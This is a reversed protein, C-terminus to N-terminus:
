LRATENILSKICTICSRLDDMTHEEKQVLLEDIKPQIDSEYAANVPAIKAEFAARLDDQKIKFRLNRLVILDIKVNVDTLPKDQAWRLADILTMLQNEKDAPFPLPNLNQAKFEELSEVSEIETEGCLWSEIKKEFSESKAVTRRFYERLKEGVTNDKPYDLISEIASLMKTKSLTPRKEPNFFIKCEYLWVSDLIHQNLVAVM